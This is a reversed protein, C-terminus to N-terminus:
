QLTEKHASKLLLSTTYSFSACISNAVDLKVYLKQELQRVDGM